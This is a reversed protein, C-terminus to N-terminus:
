QRQAQQRQIHFVVPRYSRWLIGRVLFAERKLDDFAKLGTGGAKRFTGRSRLAVKQQPFQRFQSEAPFRMIDWLQRLRRVVKKGQVLTSKAIRCM